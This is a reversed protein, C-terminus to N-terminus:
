LGQRRCYPEKSYDKVTSTEKSITATTAFINRCFQNRFRNEARQKYCQCLQLDIGVTTFKSIAQNKKM